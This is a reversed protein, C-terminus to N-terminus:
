TALGGEAVGAAPGARSGVTSPKADSEELHLASLGLDTIYLDSGTEAIYGKRALAKVSWGTFIKVTESKDLPGRSLARLCTVMRESLKSM